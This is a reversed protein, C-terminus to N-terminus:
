KESKETIKTQNETKPKQLMKSPMKYFICPFYRSFPRNDVVQGVCRTGHFISNQQHMAVSNKTLCHFIFLFLQSPYISLTYVFAQHMHPSITAMGYIYKHIIPFAWPWRIHRVLLLFFFSFLFDSIADTTTTHLLLPWRFQVSLIGIILGNQHGSFSAIYM